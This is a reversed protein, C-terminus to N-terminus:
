FKNASDIMLYLHSPKANFQALYFRDESLMWAHLLATTIERSSV